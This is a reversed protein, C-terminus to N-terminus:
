GCPPDTSVHLRARGSLSAIIPKGNEAIVASAHSGVKRRLGRRRWSHSFRGTGALQKVGFSLVGLRQAPDSRAHLAQSLGINDRQRSRHIDM